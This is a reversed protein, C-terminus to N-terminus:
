PKNDPVKSKREETPWEKYVAGLAGIWDVASIVRPPNPTTAVKYLRTPGLSLLTDANVKCSQLFRPFITSSHHVSLRQLRMELDVM